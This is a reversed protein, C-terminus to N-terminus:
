YNWYFRMEVVYYNETEKICNSSIKHMACWEEADCRAQYKLVELEEKSM